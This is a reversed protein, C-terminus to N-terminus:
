GDTQGAQGWDILSARRAFFLAIDRFETPTHEAGVSNWGSILADIIEEDRGPFREMLAWAGTMVDWGVPKFRTTEFDIGILEGSDAVMFNVPDMDHKALAFKQVPLAGFRQRAEDRVSDDIIGRYVRMYNYWDIDMDRTMQHGIYSASWAGMQWARQVLNSADVLGALMKGQVAEMVVFAYDEAYLHLKPALGTGKLSHLAFAERQCANRAKDSSQDFIKAILRHEALDLEIVSSSERQTIRRVQVPTDSQELGTVRRMVSPGHEQLWDDVRTKSQMTM